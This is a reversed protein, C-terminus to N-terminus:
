HYEMQWHEEFVYKMKWEDLSFIYKQCVYVKLVEAGSGVLLPSLNM